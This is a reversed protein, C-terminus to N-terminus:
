LDAISAEIITGRSTMINAYKRKKPATTQSPRQASITLRSRLERQSDSNAQHRQTSRPAHSAVSAVDPRAVANSQKSKNKQSNNYTATPLRLELQGPTTGSSCRAERALRSRALLM